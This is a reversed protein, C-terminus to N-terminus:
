FIAYEPDIFEQHKAVGDTFYILRRTEDETLSPLEAAKALYEEMSEFDSPRYGAKYLQQCKYPCPGEPNMIELAELKHFLEHYSDANVTWCMRQTSDKGIWKIM